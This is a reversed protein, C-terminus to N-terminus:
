QQSSLRTNPTKEALPLHCLDVSSTSEVIESTEFALLSSIQIKSHINVARNMVVVSLPTSGHVADTTDHAHRVGRVSMLLCWISLLPPSPVAATRQLHLGGFLFNNLGTTSIPFIPRPAHERM